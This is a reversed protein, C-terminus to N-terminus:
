KAGGKELKAAIARHKAQIQEQEIDCYRRNTRTWVWCLTDGHQSYRNWRFSVLEWWTREANSLETTVRFPVKIKM